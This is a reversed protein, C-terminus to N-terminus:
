PLMEFRRGIVHDTPVVGWFRSDNSNDRNDGLMFLSDAPVVFHLQPECPAAVGPEKTTVLTGAPQRPAAPIESAWRHLTACSPPPRGPLPFDKEDAVSGRHPREPSDFIEYSAGDLTERYRSCEVRYRELDGRDTYECDGDVLTAPVAEGNVYLVGCRMEVTDGGLAVVRKVYTREPECPQEFAVIEGRAIPRWLLSFREVRFEEGIALTPLMSSAPMRYGHVFV